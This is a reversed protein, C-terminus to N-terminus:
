VFNRLSNPFENSDRKTAILSERNKSKFQHKLAKRRDNIWREFERLDLPQPKTM